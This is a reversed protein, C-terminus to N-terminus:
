FADKWLRLQTFVSVPDHVDVGGRLNNLNTAMSIDDCRLFPNTKKEQGMLAPLSPLGKDRLKKIETIRALLEPKNPEVALAFQLNALTYEHGCYMNIQDDLSKLKELSQYMQRHTGEFVRGCGCSFLTDGCFLMENNYFAIHGLTHGPIDLVKLNVDLAQLNVEDGETLKQTLPKINDHAPGWVDIDPYHKLLEDIGGTHDWHHHTILISTLKLKQQTLVQLVPKADGPDVVAVEPGTDSKITWIYNDNFASIPFVQAM